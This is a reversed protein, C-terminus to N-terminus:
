IILLSRGDSYPMAAETDRSMLEVANFAAMLPDIKGVGSAAKTIMVANGRLEIKANGVCWNMLPQGCHTITGDCLKRELTKIAGQLRFGQTVAVLRDPRGDENAIGRAALADVIGGIGAPDLGVASLLGSQDIEAIVDVMEEIDLPLQDVIRLSGDREFDRLRGAESKRLELVGSHCWAKNWMLWQRTEKDRGIVALGLLDDLGGGDGGAVIVDSRALIKQPTLEPDACKEWYDAGRWRDSHLGVGIEINLHQSAWRRVEEEGSEQATAFDEILRDITISRGRNPTIMPWNAPDSWAARDKAISPPFEYIVPLMRGAQRGDRIARAKNLETRFIGAPQVESQTSIIVLFSESYAIMGGRLQGVASAAKANSAVVHLEDLLIGAPKQGTLVAPDFSMVELTASNRRDTIRKLHRQVHLLDQLGPDLGIMGEVQSFAIETIDQTPAVLLFVAKPRTNLLLSTLMLGAGYSTKSNKKPVLCFVERIHREGTLPDLSGHLARIIDRFWDGCAAKLSPSGVVDSLKLKDFVAVARDANERYLPLDLILSRGARLRDEWDVCALNWTM